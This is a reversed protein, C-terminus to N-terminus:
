IWFVSPQPSQPKTVMLAIANFAAMLPDIKASGSAQKPIIITNGRPEGLRQSGGRSIVAAQCPIADTHQRDM